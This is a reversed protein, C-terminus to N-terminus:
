IFVRDDDFSLDNASLGKQILANHLKAMASQELEQVERRTFGLVQATKQVSLETLSEQKEKRLQHVSKTQQKM